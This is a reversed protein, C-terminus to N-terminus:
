GTERACSGRAECHRGSSSKAKSDLSSGGSATGFTPARVGENRSVKTRLIGGNPLRKEYYDHDRKKGRASKLEQWGDIKCFRKHEVPGVSALASSGIQGRWGTGCAPHVAGRRTEDDFAAAAVRLAYPYHSRRNPASRLAPDDSFYEAVYALVEELLDEKAEDFTAGTGYISFEPLWISVDDAADFMVDPHFEYRGLLFKLDDNGLGFMREAAGREM